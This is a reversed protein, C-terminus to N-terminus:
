SCDIGSGICECLADLCILKICCGSQSIGEVCLEGCLETCTECCCMACVNDKKNSSQNTNPNSYRKHRAMLEAYAEKYEVADPNISIATELHRKASDFWSLHILVKSYLFHWKSTKNNIQDLKEKAIIFQKKEMLNEIDDYILNDQVIDTSM